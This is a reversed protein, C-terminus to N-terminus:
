AAGKVRLKGTLLQQMLGRKQQKLLNLQSDLKLLESQAEQLVLVARKLEDNDMPFPLTFKLVSSKDVATFTSGQQVTKWKAKMAILSFRIYDRSMESKPEIACFGRGICLDSDSIAIDGVPARVTMLVSGKPAIKSPQITYRSPNVFGDKIDDGGGALPLGTGVDNYSSAPPSQGMTVNAVKELSCEEISNLNRSFQDPLGEFLKKKHLIISQLDSIATDCDTLIEVIKQQEALEPLWLSLQSLEQAYIHVVSNGTALKFKQRNLEWSNLMHALYIPDQGHGRLIITDGGVYTEEQGVFASAKGIEEATEGSTPFIIDGYELKQADAAADSSVRSIPNRIVEGYETYIEAYRICSLGGEDVLDSKAIGKGRIFNGLTGLQVIADSM